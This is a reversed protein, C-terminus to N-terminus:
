LEAFRQVFRREVLELLRELRHEIDLTHEPEESQVVGRDVLVAVPNAGAVVAEIAVRFPLEVDNRVIHILREARHHAEAHAESLLGFAGLQLLALAGLVAETGFFTGEALTRLITGEAALSRFVAGNPFVAGEAHSRLAHSPRRRI